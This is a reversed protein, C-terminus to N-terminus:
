SRFSAYARPHGFPVRWMAINWSSFFFWRGRLRAQAAELDRGAELREAESLKALGGRLNVSVKATKARLVGLASTM